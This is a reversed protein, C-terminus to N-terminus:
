FPSIYGNKELVKLLEALTASDMQIDTFISDILEKSSDLSKLKEKVEGSSEIKERYVTFELHDQIESAMGSLVTKLDTTNM